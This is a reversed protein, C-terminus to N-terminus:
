DGSIGGGGHHGGDGGGHDDDDDEKKLRFLTLTSNVLACRM